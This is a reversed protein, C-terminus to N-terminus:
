KKKMDAPTDGPKAPRFLHCANCRVAKPEHDVQKQHCNATQCTARQGFPQAGHPAHCTTCTQHKAIAHLGPLENPKHCDNCVKLKKSSHIDHCTTCQVKESTHGKQPPTRKDHCSLCAKRDAPKHPLGQHCDECKAHGANKMAATSAFTGQHCEKCGAKEELKKKFAHPAHCQACTMSAGTKKDKAHVIAAFKADKHCSSCDKVFKAGPMAQHMPHCQMCTHYTDDKKTAEDKPAPHTNKIDTHCSDCRKPTGSAGAHPDHCDTCRAHGNFKKPNNKFGSLFTRALVPRDTHCSVCPKVEAKVFRHPRHCAGCSPHGKFLAQQTILTNKTKQEKPDSHCQVCHKTADVGAAHKDHCTMCSQAVSKGKTAGHALTESHCVTCETPQTFPERHPQHCFFCAATHAKVAVKDGIPEAHCNLCVWPTMPKVGNRVVFPHCTLCNIVGGDPMVGADNMGHHFGVRDEHCTKCPTVQPSEFGKSDLEHCNRCVIRTGADARWLGVHKLHGGSNMAERYSEPVILIGGDGAPVPETPEEAYAAVGTVLGALLLAGRFTALRV